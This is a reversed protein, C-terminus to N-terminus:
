SPDCTPDVLRAGTLQRTIEEGIKALPDRGLEALDRPHPLEVQHEHTMRVYGDPCQQLILIRDCLYLLTDLDHSALVLVARLRKMESSWWHFLNWRQEIGVETLPEDACFVDPQTAIACALRARQMEGASLRDPPSQSLGSIDCRQLIKDFDLRGGKPASSSFLRVNDRLTYWPTLGGKQPIYGIRKSWVEFLSATSEAPLKRRVLGRLLTTKGCGSPGTIGIREGPGVSLNVGDMLLRGPISLSLDRIEIRAGASHTLPNM